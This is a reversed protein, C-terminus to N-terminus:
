AMDDYAQELIASERQMEEFHYMIYENAKWSEMSSFNTWAVKRESIYIQM